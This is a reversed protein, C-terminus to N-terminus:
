HISFRVTAFFLYIIVMSYRYNKTTTLPIQVFSYSPPFRYFPLLIFVLSLPPSLSSPISILPASAVRLSVEVNSNKGHARDRRAFPRHGKERM